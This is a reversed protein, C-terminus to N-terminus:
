KRISDFTSIKILNGSDLSLLIFGKEDIIIDRIRENVSIKEDLVVKDGSLKLRHLNQAGMHVVLLDGRWDILPSKKSIRVLNGAGVGPIWSFLPKSFKQHDGSKAGFKSLEKDVWIRPDKADNLEDKGSPFKSNYPKGFTELPWGYNAGRELINVEDGGSPGHESEFLLNNESDWFLGQANRMGNAYIKWSELGPDFELVSGFVNVPLQNTISLNQKPFGSRDYRQEGVSIFLKDNNSTFRGGWMITNQMDSVCPSNFFNQPSNKQLPSSLSVLSLYQCQKEEVVVSLFLGNFAWHLDMALPPSNVEKSIKLNMEQYINRVLKGNSLNSDEFYWLKGSIRELAYLNSQSDVAIQYQGLNKFQSDLKFEYRSSGRSVFIYEKLEPPGSQKFFNQVKYVARPVYSVGKHEILSSFAGLVFFLLFLVALLLYRRSLTKRM